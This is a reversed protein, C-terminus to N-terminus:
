EVGRYFLGRTMDDPTWDGGDKYRRLVAACQEPTETTFRLRGYTLGCRHMEPKDALFLTRSNQIECRCGYGCTVPFQAGTRDTLVSGAGHTCGVNCRTVCNEMVMLPLRGYVIAECPLHKNLDRVQQWRLEFSATASSLGQERWFLLARSNFINLGFDGRLTRGLGRVIPLHGLNGVAVATAEPHRELLQRLVPEDATRFIRPLVAGLETEGWDLGADLRELEEIPVYVIAPKEALLAATVQEAKLVSCTFRMQKPPEPAEPLAAAELVRRHPIDERRATLEDLLERRLGNIVSAPLMLGDDLEARFQEVTFVTGGTKSLRERLEEATLARSRATEPVPGQAWVNMLGNNSQCAVALSVPKGAQVRIALSVPIRRNERGNEYQARAEAFLEKPEPANEPRTGFMQPGKKGLWYGDTFGSRSFAQELQRAEEATPRRKEDLLRRYIGTIVAVYEPRKMRGELKLCAVGMEAMEGLYASLNADKLSLPHGGRCPGDVGYPLRCPQACAGRNGSREGVVASMECQGSYCMCLAGHIFIEIEAPCGACIERVEDRNLERALVVREMGLAAAENAGGLTFLSMQTSAHLPVDPVIERALTLLGWDQVLIADVGMACAKKLADAAQVLERDTLLTNLTLFVRVGRLHCYSVASAFEEDTFNKASRRANFAGFGMYVADAGTQVAAILSDFGGAPSLLEMM